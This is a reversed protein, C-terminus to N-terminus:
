GWYAKRIYEFKKKLLRGSIAKITRVVESVRKKPPISLQIHIHDKDHNMTLVNVEPSKKLIQEMIIEFYEYSGANLVNRRHKSVIVVHYESRYAWQGPLGGM